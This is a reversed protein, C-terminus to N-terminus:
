ANMPETIAWAGARCRSGDWDCGTSFDGYAYAPRERRPIDCACSYYFNPGGVFSFWAHYAAFSSHEAGYAALSTFYVMDLPNLGLLYHLHRQARESVEDAARGCLVGLHRAMMLHAGYSAQARNSGWSYDWGNGPGGRMGGYAGTEEFAPAIVVRAIGARMAGRTAESTTPDLLAHWAATTLVDEAPTAAGVTGDWSAWDVAGVRAAAAALSPDLRHM